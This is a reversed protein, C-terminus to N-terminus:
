STGGEQQKRMIFEAAKQARAAATVIWRPHEKLQPIWGKIYSVSNLFNPSVGTHACMFNAGIEAVLEELSYEDSAFKNIGVDFRKLRKPHGTSHILEHFLTMLYEDTNKYQSKNTIRILDKSPSYYPIIREEAVQLSIDERALFDTIVENPVASIPDENVKNELYELYENGDIFECQEVNFVRYIKLFWKQVEV